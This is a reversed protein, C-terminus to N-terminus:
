TDPRRNPAEANELLFMAATQKKEARPEQSFIEHENYHKAQQELSQYMRGTHDVIAVKRPTTDIQDKALYQVGLAGCMFVPMMFVGLIFAKSTAAIFYEARAVALIKNMIRSGVM